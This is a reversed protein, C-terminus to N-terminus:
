ALYDGKNAKYSELIEMAAKAAYYPVETGTRKKIASIFKHIKDTNINQLYFDKIRCYYDIDSELVERMFTLVTEIYGDSDEGSSICISDADKLGHLAQIYRITALTICPNTEGYVFQLTDIGNKYKIPVKKYQRIFYDNYDLNRSKYSIRLERLMVALEGRLEQKTMESYHKTFLM